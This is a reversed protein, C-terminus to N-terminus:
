TVGGTGVRLHCEIRAVSRELRGLREGVRDRRSMVVTFLNLGIVVVWGVTTIAVTDM